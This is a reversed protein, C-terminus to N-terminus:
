RETESETVISLAHLKIYMNITNDYRSNGRLKKKNLCYFHVRHIITTININNFYVYKLYLIFNMYYVYTCVIHDM